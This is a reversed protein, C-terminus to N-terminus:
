LERVKELKEELNQIKLNYVAIQSLIHNILYEKAKKHTNFCAHYEGEILDSTEEGNLLYIIFDGTKEIVEIKDISIPLGKWARYMTKM